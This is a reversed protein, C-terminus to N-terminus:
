RVRKDSGDAVSQKPRDFVPGPPRERVATSFATPETGGHRRAETDGHQDQGTDEAVETEEVETEEVEAEEIETEEVEPEEGTRTV